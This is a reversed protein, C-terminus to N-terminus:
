ILGGNLCSLLVSAVCEDDDADERIASSLEADGAFFEAARHNKYLQVVLIVIPM